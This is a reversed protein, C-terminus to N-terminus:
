RCISVRSGKFMLKRSSAEEWGRAVWWNIKHRQTQSNSTGRILSIICYKDKQLQSMENLITDEFNM